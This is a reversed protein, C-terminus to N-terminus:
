HGAGMALSGSARPPSFRGTSMAAPMALQADVVEQAAIERDLQLILEDNYGYRAQMKRRLRYLNQLTRSM